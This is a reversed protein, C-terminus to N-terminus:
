IKIQKFNQRDEREGKVKKLNDVFKGVMENKKTCRNVFNCLTKEFGISKMPLFGGMSNTIFNKILLKIQVKLTFPDIVFITGLNGCTFSPTMFFPIQMPEFVKCSLAVIRLGLGDTNPYSLNTLLKITSEILMFKKMCMSQTKLTTELDEFNLLSYDGAVQVGYDEIDENIDNFIANLYKIVTNRSTLNDSEPILISKSLLIKQITLEDLHIKVKLIYSGEKNSCKSSIFILFLFIFM